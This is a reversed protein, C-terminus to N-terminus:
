GKTGENTGEQEREKNGRGESYKQTSPEQLGSRLHHSPPPLRLKGRRMGMYISMGTTLGSGRDKEKDQNKKKKKRLVRRGKQTHVCYRKPADYRSVHRGPPVQKTRTCEENEQGWRHFFLSFTLSHTHSHSLSSFSADSYSVRKKKLWVFLSFFYLSFAGRVCVFLM